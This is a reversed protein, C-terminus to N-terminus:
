RLLIEGRGDGSDGPVYRCVACLDIAVAAFSAAPPTTIFIM